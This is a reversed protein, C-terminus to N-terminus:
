ISGNPVFAVMNQQLTSLTLAQNHIFSEEESYYITLPLHETRDCGWQTTTQYDYVGSQTYTTGHWIYSDCEVVAPLTVEEEEHVNLNVEYYETDCQNAAYYRVKTCGTTVSPITNGNVNQWSGNNLVQWGQSTVSSGNPTVTPAPLTLPDGECLDISSPLNINSIAPSQATNIHVTAESVVGHNTVRYVFQVEGYYNADTFTYRIKKDSLVQTTGHPVPNTLVQVQADNTNPLVNDNQLVNVDVYDNLCLTNTVYDDQAQVDYFVNPTFSIHDLGFDDGSDPNGTYTDYIEISIPGSINGSNWTRSIEVWNHSNIDLTVNNGVPSGNIKVQIISPYANFLWSSQSLNRVYCKFTYTTQTTVNVQQYWVKKTPNQSNGFGNFLLYYGSGGYGPLNAPWGLSGVGHGTSTIDHIFKGEEVGGSWIRTYDSIAQYDFGSTQEFDGNVVLNQAFLLTPLLLLLMTLVKFIRQMRNNM